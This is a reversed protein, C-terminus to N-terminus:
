SVMWTVLAMITVMAAIVIYGAVPEPNYDSDDYDEYHDNM